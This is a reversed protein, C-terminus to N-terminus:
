STLADKMVAFSEPHRCGIDISQIARIEIGGSAFGSGYPNPIVELVGWEGIVLSAWDGFFIESCVGSSTGKTLNSRAQNTMMVPYGGIRDVPGEAISSFQNGRKSLYEGTTTKLKSLAAQTKSNLIFGMANGEANANLVAAILDLCNDM